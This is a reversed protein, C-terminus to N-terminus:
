VPNNMQEKQLQKIKLLEEKPVVYTQSWRDHWGYSYDDGLCSLADFPILRFISRAAIQKLNPKNGYEDIVVNGTLFKGPTQQWYFECIFYMLPYGLLLFLSGYYQIYITSIGIGDLILSFFGILFQFSIILVQFFISDVFFHGFRPATKVTKIRYNTIYEEVDRVRDGFEDVYYITRSREEKLESIKLM